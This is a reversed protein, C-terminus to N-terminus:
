VGTVKRHGTKTVQVNSFSIERSHKGRANKEAKNVRNEVSSTQETEDSYLKPTRNPQKTNLNQEHMIPKKGNRLM